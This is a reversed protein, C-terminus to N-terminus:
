HRFIVPLFVEYWRVTHVVGASVSGHFNVDGGYTATLTKTGPSTFTLVCSGATVSGVCSVTGDGVTVDGTPTGWASTVTYEVTVAQGVLSPHPTHASITTTTGTKIVLNVAQHASPAVFNSVTVTFPHTGTVTPTGSLVGSTADLTLGSPLGGGTVHFAPELPYGSATFPHNFPAGFTAMTPATSTFSPSTAGNLRAVRKRDIGDVQQFGGGILVKGDSQAVVSYVGGSAGTSTDFGTDLSGDANLRAVRGRPTGAVLFFSGGILVKGDTQVALSYVM